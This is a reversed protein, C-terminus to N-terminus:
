GAREELAADLAREADADLFADLDSILLAGDGLAAIGALPAPVSAPAPRVADADVEVVGLVADVPLAVRRGHAGARALLIQGRAGRARTPRGLRLDLDLVPVIEGRVNIAGLVGAPSAPLPEVAVMPVAREVADLALAWRQGGVDAAVLTLRAADTLAMGM